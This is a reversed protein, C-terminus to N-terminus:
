LKWLSAYIKIMAEFVAFFRGWGQAAPRCPRPACFDHPFSRSESQFIKSFLTYHFLIAM